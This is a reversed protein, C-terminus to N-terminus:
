LSKMRCLGVHELCRAVQPQRGLVFLVCQNSFLCKRARCVSMYESLAQSLSPAKKDKFLEQPVIEEGSVGLHVSKKKWSCRFIILALVSLFAISSM